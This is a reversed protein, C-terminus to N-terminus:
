LCLPMSAYVFVVVHLNTPAPQQSRAAFKVAVRANRKKEPECSYSHLHSAATIFVCYIGGVVEDYHLAHKLICVKTQKWVGGMLFLGLSLACRKKELASHM